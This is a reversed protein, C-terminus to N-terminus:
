AASEKTPALASFLEFVPDVRLGTVSLEEALDHLEWFFESLKVAEAGGNRPGDSALGKMEDSLSGLYAKVRGKEKTGLEEYAVFVIAVQGEVTSFIPDEEDPETVVDGRSLSSLKKGVAAFSARDEDLGRGRALCGLRLSWDAARRAVDAYTIRM